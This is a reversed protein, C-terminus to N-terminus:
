GESHGQGHVCCDWKGVPCESKHHQVLLSVETNLLYQVSLCENSNQVKATVKFMTFENNWM